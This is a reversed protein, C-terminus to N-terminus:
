FGVISFLIIQINVANPNVERKITFYRSLYQIINRPILSLLAMPMLTTSYYGGGKRRVM